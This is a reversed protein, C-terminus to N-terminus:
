KKTIELEFETQTENKFKLFVGSNWLNFDFLHKVGNIHLYDGGVIVDNTEFHRKVARALPCDFIDMYDNDSFDEQIFKIIQKKSEM